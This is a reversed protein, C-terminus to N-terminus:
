YREAAIIICIATHGQTLINQKIHNTERHKRPRDLQIHSFRKWNLDASFIISQIMLMLTVCGMFNITLERDKGEKYIDLVSHNIRAKVDTTGAFLWNQQTMFTRFINTASCSYIQFHEAAVSVLMLTKFNRKDPKLHALLIYNPLQWFILLNNGNSPGWTKAWEDQFSEWFFGEEKQCRRPKSNRKTLNSTIYSNVSCAFHLQTTAYITTCQWTNHM